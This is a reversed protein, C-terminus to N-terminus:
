TWSLSMVLSFETGDKKLVVGDCYINRALTIEFKFVMPCYPCQCLGLICNVEVINLVHTAVFEDSERGEAQSHLKVARQSIAVAKRCVTVGKFDGNKIRVVM